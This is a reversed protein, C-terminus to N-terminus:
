NCADAVASYFLSSQAMESRRSLLPRLTTM